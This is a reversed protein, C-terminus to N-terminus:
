LVIKQTEGGMTILYIGRPLQLSTENGRYILQGSINYIQYDSTLGDIHLTGNTTYIKTQNDSTNEVPTPTSIVRFEATITTDSTVYITHPNETFGDSWKVFEYGPLAQAVVQASIDQCTPQKIVFANGM